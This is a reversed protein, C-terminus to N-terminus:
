ARLAAAKFYQDQRVTFEKRYSTTDSGWQKLNKYVTATSLKRRICVGEISEGKAKAQVVEEYDEPTLKLPRGLKTGQEKTRAMGQRTRRKLDSLELQAFAAAMTIVVEGMESTMDMNGYALVCLRVKKNKFIEVNKLVDLTKRGIRSIESVVVTDGEQLIEMMKFYEARDSSKTTGSTDEDSFINDLAYGVKKAAQIQNEVTQESTSCRAYLHIAM